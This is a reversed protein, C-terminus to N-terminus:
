LQEFASDCAVKCMDGAIKRVDKKQQDTLNLKKAIEDRLVDPLENQMVGQFTTALFTHLEPGIGSMFTHVDDSQAFPRTHESLIIHM